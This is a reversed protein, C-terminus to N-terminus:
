NVPEWKGDGLFKSRNGAKDKYTKGVEFGSAPGAPKPRSLNSLGAEGTRINGFALAKSGPNDPDDVQSFHYQPSTDTKQKLKQIFDLGAQDYLGAADALGAKRAAKAGLQYGKLQEVIPARLLNEYEAEQDARAQARAHLGIGLGQLRRAEKADEAAQELQKLQIASQDDWRKEQAKWRGEQVGEKRDSDLWNLYKDGHAPNIASLRAHIGRAYERNVDEPSYFKGQGMQGDAGVPNVHLGDATINIAVKKGDNYGLEPNQSNYHDALFSARDQWSGELRGKEGQWFDALAKDEAQKKKIEKMQEDHMQQQRLDGREARDMDQQKNMQDVGAGM